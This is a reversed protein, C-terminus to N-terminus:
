ENGAFSGSTNVEKNQKSFEQETMDYEFVKLEDHM